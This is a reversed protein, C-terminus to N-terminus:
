HGRGENGQRSRASFTSPGRLCRPVAGPLASTCSQAARAAARVVAVTMMAMCALAARLWDLVSRSCSESLATLKHEVWQLVCADRGAEARETAYCENASRVENASGMGQGLAVAAM